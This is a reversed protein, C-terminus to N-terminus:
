EKEMNDWISEIDNLERASYYYLADNWGCNIETEGIGARDRYDLEETIDKLTVGISKFYPITNAIYHERLEEESYDTFTCGAINLCCDFSNKNQCGDVGCTMSNEGDDYEGSLYKEVTRVDTEAEAYLNHKKICHPCIYVDAEEWDKTNLNEDTPYGYECGSSNEAERYLQFDDFEIGKYLLKKM